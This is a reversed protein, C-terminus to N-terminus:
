VKRVDLWDVVVPGTPRPTIACYFGAKKAWAAVKDRAQRDSLGAFYLYKAMEWTIEVHRGAQVDAALSELPPKKMDPYLKKFDELSIREVRWGCETILAERAEDSLPDLRQLKM